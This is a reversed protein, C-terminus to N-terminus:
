RSSAPHTLRQENIASFMTDFERRAFAPMVADPFMFSKYSDLFNKARSAWVDSKNRYEVADAGISSDVFFGFKAAISRACVCACLDCVASFDNWYVTSVAHPISYLVRITYASSPTDSLFRLYKIGSKEYITYDEFSIEDDSPDQSQDAPYEVKLIDSYGDKWNPFNTENIAYLYSGNGSIDSTKKYPKHGSYIMIANPILTDIEASTLPAATGDPQKLRLDVGENFDALSYSGGTPISGPAPIGVSIFPFDYTVNGLTVNTITVMFNNNSTPTFSSKWWEGHDYTMTSSTSSSQFELSTFNWYYGDSLRRISITVNDTSSSQPIGQLINHLTNNEIYQLNEM